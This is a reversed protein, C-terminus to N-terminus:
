LHSYLAIEHDIWFSLSGLLTKQHFVRTLLILVFSLLASPISSVDSPSYWLSFFRCFRGIFFSISVSYDFLVLYSHTTCAWEQSPWLCVSKLNFGLQFFSCCRFEVRCLGLLSCIWYKWTISWANIILFGLINACFMALIIATTTFNLYVLSPHAM